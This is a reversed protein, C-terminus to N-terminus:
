FPIVIDAQQIKEAAQRMTVYTFGYKEANDSNNSYREGGMEDLFAMNDRYAEDMIEIESHLVFMQVAMGELLLGVCTRLGEYQQQPDKIIIATKRM